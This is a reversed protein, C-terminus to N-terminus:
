PTHLACILRIICKIVWGLSNSKEGDRGRFSCPVFFIGEFIPFPSARENWSRKKLFHCRVKFGWKMTGVWKEQKSLPRCFAQFFRASFSASFCMKIRSFHNWIAGEKGVGMEPFSNANQSILDRNLTNLSGKVTPSFLGFLWFPRTAGGLEGRGFCVRSEFCM